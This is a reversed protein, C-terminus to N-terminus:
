SALNYAVREEQLKAEHLLIYKENVGMKKKLISIKNCLFEGKYNFQNFNYNLKNFDNVPISRAITIHPLLSQEKFNFENILSRNIGRIPDPNAVKLVLSRKTSGHTFIDVGDLKVKFAHLNKLANSAKQIVYNDIGGNVQWKFLSLHPVSWINENSLSITNNVIMKYSRVERDTKMDPQILFFYEFREEDFLNLQDKM